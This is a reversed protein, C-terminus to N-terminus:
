WHSKAIGACRGTFGDGHIRVHGIVAMAQEYPSPIGPGERWGRVGMLHADEDYSSRSINFASYFKGDTSTAEAWWNYSSECNALKRIWEPFVQWNWQRARETLFARCSSLRAKWRGIEAERFAQSHPVWPYYYWPTHQQPIKDQCNWTATIMDAIHKAKIYRPEGQATGINAVLVLVGVLLM